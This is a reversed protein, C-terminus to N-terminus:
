CNDFCSYVVVYREAKKSEKYNVPDTTAIGKLYKAEEAQMNLFVILMLMTLKVPCNRM